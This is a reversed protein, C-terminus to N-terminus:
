DYAGAIDAHVDSLVTAGHPHAARHARKGEVKFSLGSRPFPSSAVACSAGPLALRTPLRGGVFVTTAPPGLDQPRGWQVCHGAM